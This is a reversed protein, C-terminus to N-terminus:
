EISHFSTFLSVGGLKWPIAKWCSLWEDPAHVIVIESHSKVVEQVILFLETNFHLVTKLSYHSDSHFLASHNISM